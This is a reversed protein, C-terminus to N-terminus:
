QNPGSKSTLGASNQEDAPMKKQIDGKRDADADLGKYLRKFDNIGKRLVSELRNWHEENEIHRRWGRMMLVVQEETFDMTPSGDRYFQRLTFTKCERNDIGEAPDYEHDELLVGVKSRRPGLEVNVDTCKHWREDIMEVFCGAPLTGLPQEAKPEDIVQQDKAM